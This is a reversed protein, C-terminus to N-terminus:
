GDWGHVAHEHPEHEPTGRLKLVVAGILAIYYPVELTTLSVFQASVAFGILAAIVMRAGMCLWPDPVAAGERTLRWLRVVCMGFLVMLCGLGVFGVEAGLQLWLSHAQKGEKFGYEAALTGFQNPGIGFPHKQM